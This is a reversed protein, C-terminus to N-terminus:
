QTLYELIEKRLQRFAKVDTNYTANDQVLRSCFEEAKGPDKTEAMKLLDYDRIGDRMACLRISPYVEHYGPYIIFMDGGLFDGSANEYPKNKAGLWYNLGWHLFGRANYKYNVWHIIRTKILPIRIFRNAYNGQPQMATYMWQTQNGTARYRAINNLTPCPYDLLGPDLKDTSIPELIKIKPAGQKVYGAIINWAPALGTTPEDFVTQVYIDTWKRGDPLTHSDLFEQLQRFYPVIFAEVEPVKKDKVEYERINFKGKENVIPNGNDDLEIGRVTLTGKGKHSGSVINTGHLQRLEPCSRIYQNFEKEYISFNFGPEYKGTGTNNEVSYDSFSNAVYQLRYCNQGYRNLFPVMVHEIMDYVMDGDPTIGNNMAEMSPHVWNIVDLGQDEPLMVDYVQVFFTHEAQETGSVTVHGEYLGPATNGPITFEIWLAAKEGTDLSVEWKDAPMLPDPYMDGDAWLEDSPAGGAWEDWHRTCKIDRVWYIEPTVTIGTQGAPAFSTVSPTIRGQANAAYVIGQFTATEGKAVRITDTIFGYEESSIPKILPDTQEIWLNGHVMVPISTKGGSVSATLTALGQASATVTGSADVTFIEPDSSTWVPIETADEPLLEALVKLKDGIKLSLSSRGDIEISTAPVHSSRVTLICKSSLNGVSAVIETEGPVLATIKGNEDVTAINEDSSYWVVNQEAANWPTVQVSLTATKGEVLSLKDPSVSVSSTRSRSAELDMEKPTCSMCFLATLLIISGRAQMTSSTYSEQAKELVTRLETIISIM